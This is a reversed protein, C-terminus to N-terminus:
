NKHVAASSKNEQSPIQLPQLSYTVKRLLLWSCKSAPNQQVYDVRLIAKIQLNLNM